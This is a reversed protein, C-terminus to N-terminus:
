DQNVGDLVLTLQGSEFLTLDTPVLVPCDLFLKNTSAESKIVDLSSAYMLIGQQTMLSLINPNDTPSAEYAIQAGNLKSIKRTQM